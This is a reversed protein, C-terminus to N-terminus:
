AAMAPKAHARKSNSFELPLDYKRWITCLADVLQETLGDTHHPTPAIRLREDGKDVTPYNISQVYIGHEALLETSIRTCLAAEGVHLPLIHSPAEIVPLGENQLRKKVIAVRRQHESRLERGEASKLVAISARAAALVPPPLSTTFIFGSAYSRIMDVLDHNGALYGGISAFAKGLTGTIADIRHMLGDREAVGAGRDGYLGVAHVEDVFTMANRAESADLLGKLPCVDGTMSHVTEFAVLKPTDLPLEALLTTLHDVDNHRFIRKPARSTRIGHIMSAHNGADSLVTIGPLRTGLTHLSAENAVYCSTFLLASEKGHLDALDAELDVHLKTNGSINRTGGSGVGHLRIAAIAAEQVKPHWSMGLYDNSCWITVRRRTGTSFDDAFPFEKADRLVQKFVRYTSDQKKRNIESRYFGSYDFGRSLELKFQDSPPLPQASAPVDQKATQNTQKSRRWGDFLACTRPIEQLCTNRESICDRVDDSPPMNLASTGDTNLTSSYPCKKLLCESVDKCVGASDARPEITAAEAVLSSSFRSVNIDAKEFLRRAFPCKPILGILQQADKQIAAPSLKKLFPCSLM